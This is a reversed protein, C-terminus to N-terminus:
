EPGDIKNSLHIYQAAINPLWNQLTDAQRFVCHTQQIRQMKNTHQRANEQQQIDLKIVKFHINQINKHLNIFQLKFYEYFATQFAHARNHLLNRHMEFINQPKMYLEYRCM